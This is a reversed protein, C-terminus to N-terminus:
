RPLKTDIIATALLIDAHCPGALARSSRMMMMSHPDVQSTEGTKAMWIRPRKILMLPLRFRSRVLYKGDLGTPMRFFGGSLGQGRKWTVAFMDGRPPKLGM